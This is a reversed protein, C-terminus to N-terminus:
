QLCARAETMPPSYKEVCNRCVCARNRAPEPVLKLVNQSIRVRTCWCPEPAPDPQALRCENPRGCIPCVAPDIVKTPM